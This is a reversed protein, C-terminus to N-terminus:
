AAFSFEDAFRLMLCLWESRYFPVFLTKGNRLPITAIVYSVGFRLIQQIRMRSGSIMQVSSVSMHPEAQEKQFLDILQDSRGERFATVYTTVRDQELNLKNQSKRQKLRERARHLAAKVAGESTGVMRATEQATYDLGVSLLMTLRQKPSIESLLIEMARYMEDPDTGNQSKIGSLDQKLDEDPKRKRYGDIWANYAIRFLYAKSLSRPKKLWGKYAKALTEQVLDEGDWTSKTLSQCYNNLNELYPRIAEEFNENAQALTKVLPRM